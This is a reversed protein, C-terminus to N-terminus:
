AVPVLKMPQLLDLQEAKKRLAEKAFIPEGHVKRWEKEYGQIRKVDHQLMLERLGLLEVANFNHSIVATIKTADGLDLIFAELDGHYQELIKEKYTYYWESGPYPTAFFPKVMIGIREWFAMNDYLSDFFEDLIECVPITTDLAVADLNEIFNPLAVRSQDGSVPPLERRKEIAPVISQNPSRHGSEVLNCPRVGFGNVLHQRLDNARSLFTGDDGPIM